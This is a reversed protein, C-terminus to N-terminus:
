KRVNWKELAFIPDVTSLKIKFIFMGGVFRKREKLHDIGDLGCDVSTSAEYILFLVHGVDIGSFVRLHAANVLAAFTFM